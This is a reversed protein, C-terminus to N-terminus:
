VLNTPSWGICFRCVLERAFRSTIYNGPTCYTVTPRHSQIPLDNVVHTTGDRYPTKLTLVVQGARHFALYENAFAPRTVYRCLIADEAGRLAL